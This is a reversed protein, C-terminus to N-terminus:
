RKEVEPENLAHNGAERIQAATPYPEVEPRPQRRRCKVCIEVGSKSVALEGGCKFCSKEGM